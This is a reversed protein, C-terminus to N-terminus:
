DKPTIYVTRLAVVLSPLATYYSTDNKIDMWGLTSSEMKNAIDWASKANRTIQRLHTGTHNITADYVDDLVTRFTKNDQLNVFEAVGAADKAYGKIPEAGHSGFKRYISPLIPGHTWTEFNENFLKKNTIKAYHSALFYLIGQLKLCTVEADYESAKRLITNAVTTTYFM